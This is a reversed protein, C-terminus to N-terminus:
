KEYEFLKILEKLHKITRCNPVEVWGINFFHIDVSDLGSVEIKFKEKTLTFERFDTNEETYSIDIFGLELLENDTM